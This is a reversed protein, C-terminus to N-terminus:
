PHGMIVLRADLTYETWNGDGNPDSGPSTIQVQRLVLAVSTIEAGQLDPNYNGLLGGNISASERWGMSPPPRPGLALSVSGVAYDDTGNTLIAVAQQFDPNNSANITKTTGDDANGVRVDVVTVNAAASEGASEAAAIPTLSLWFGIALSDAVGISGTLGGGGAIIIQALPQPLTVPTSTVPNDDGCSAFLPLVIVCVAIVFVCRM